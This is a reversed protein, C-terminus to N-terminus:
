LLLFLSTESCIFYVRRKAADLKLKANSGSKTRPLHIPFVDLNGLVPHVRERIYEAFEERFGGLEVTGEDTLRFHVM